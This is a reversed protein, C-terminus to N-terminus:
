ISEAARLGFFLYVILLYYYFPHHKKNKKIEKGKVLFILINPFCQSKLGLVGYVTLCNACSIHFM